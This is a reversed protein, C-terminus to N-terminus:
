SKFSNELIYFTFNQTTIIKKKLLTIYSEGLIKFVGAYTLYGHYCLIEWLYM